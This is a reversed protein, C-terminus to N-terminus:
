PASDQLGHRGDVTACLVRLAKVMKDFAAVNPLRDIRLRMMGKSKPSEYDHKGVLTEFEDVAGHEIAIDISHSQVAAVVGQVRPGSEGGGGNDAGIQDEGMLRLAVVDGVTMRHPALQERHPQVLNVIVRGALGGATNSLALNLLSIGRKECQRASLSQCWLAHEKEEAERELELLEIQRGVAAAAATSMQLRSIAPRSPPLM